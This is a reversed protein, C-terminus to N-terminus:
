KPFCDTIAKVVFCDGEKLLSSQLCTHILFNYVNNVAKDEVVTVSIIDKRVAQSAM